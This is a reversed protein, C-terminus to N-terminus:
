RNHRKLRKRHVKRLRKIKQVNRYSKGVRRRKKKISIQVMNVGFVYDIYIVV